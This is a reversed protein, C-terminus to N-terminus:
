VPSTVNIRYTLLTIVSQGAYPIFDNACNGSVLNGRENRARLSTSRRKTDQLARDGDSMCYSYMLAFVFGGFSITDM